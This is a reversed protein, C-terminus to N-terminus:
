KKSPFAEFPICWTKYHFIVQGGCIWVYAIFIAGSTTRTYEAPKTFRKSIATNQKNQTYM